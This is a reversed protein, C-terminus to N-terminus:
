TKCIQNGHRRYFFLPEGIIKFRYGNHISKKWLILDEEPIDNEGYRNESDEWFERNYAVAPHAIVNHNVTLNARISGHGAMHRYAKIEDDENIEFFDSSVIDYGQEFFKLQTEIRIFEYFDDMNTNFVYDCGDEFAKSIIFNMAVSHNVFKENFFKSGEVLQMDCDGYNVEYLYLPQYTQQNISNICKDVWRKKYIKSINQHFFVVGVKM